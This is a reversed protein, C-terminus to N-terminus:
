HVPTVMLQSLSFIMFRPINRLFFSRVRLKYANGELPDRGVQYPNTLHGGQQQYQQVADAVTPLLRPDIHKAQNNSTMRM